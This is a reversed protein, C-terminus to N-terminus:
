RAVTDGRGQWLAVLEDVGPLTVPRTDRGTLVQHFVADVSDEPQGTAQAWALRYLALQLPDAPAAGTKWDVVRHSRDPLQFVADIRGRVLTDGLVLVFPQEVAIPTMAAYPGATFAAILDDLRQTDDDDDQEDAEFLEGAGYFQQVWDHFRTGTTVGETVPRPMPRVLRSVFDDPRAARDVFGTATVAGPLRVTTTGEEAAEALLHELDADWAAILAAHEITDAPEIGTEYDGARGAARFGEVLRAAERRRDRLAEDVPAPWAASRTGSPLPNEGTEPPALALIQNSARAATLIDLLYRSPRRPKHLGARWTHGTGTLQRRARTVAVYALRDESRNASEKLEAAYQDFAKKTTEAPQPIADADGRLPSPVAASSKLWNNTVRDSPFTQDVLAPVYVCDWELGKAKHVTLLKVSDHETPVAQELGVGDIQEARLYALLGALSADGDVDVYGAVADVFTELQTRRALQHWRPSATLEVDLGLTHIVRRTLDIVPEAAHERLRQVERSFLALRERAAESLPAEGPDDVADLLAVVATDDVDALADALDSFVDPSERESRPMQDSLERARRGLVALDAPGIRWRPGSLLRVLEPNATVDNLLTLMAVVDAVEPLDLLGGLGVIEAPVDREVLAAYLPAIDHNRRMLVAIQSWSAARGSRHDDIILEAVEAVEQSWTEYTAARVVAAPTQAPAVLAPAQAAGHRMLLPDAHLDRAVTNAVDLVEQGSRRNVSLTYGDAPTGDGRRFTDAFTLINSAAAGRWGYIAQFPDGVATVAHGLGDAVREGTFLGALLQAQASSTDQYEDLLVVRFQSRLATSVGPVERVLRAATAMQDAFEVLGLERKLGQYAAVLELLELREAAAAGATRIDAYPNGRYLPASDLDRRFEATFERVDGPDVLHSTLEGDLSLLRETVSAARLRSIHAFPGPAHSVVRSALRYRAAGTIMTPDTEVAIRLGHEAVLRAAFADYTLVVEEGAEDAGSTDIVGARALATRIRASLEGAAKRTFTLGLVEQPAVQGTGVLWVVRAAMVTTKGSGAGAIIVAPELPATIAALQEESFGIGLADCLDDTSTLARRRLVLQHISM